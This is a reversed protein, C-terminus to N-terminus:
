LRFRKALFLLAASGLSASVWRVQGITFGPWGTMAGVLQGLAFGAIAALWSVSLQRWTQGWLIHFTAAYLTALVLSLILSPTSFM